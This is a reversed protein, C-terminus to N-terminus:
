KLSKILTIYRRYPKFGFKRYLDLLTTWDILCGRVGLTKMDLIACDILYVGLRHGRAARGLGLPGIQGWPHPLRQMYFRELSRESNELTLRCFGEVRGDLWLLLYDSPHGGDTIFVETEYEWRGAYERRMFDLLLSEQGAQMPQVQAGAPQTAVPQYDDLIRALDWEFPESGRRFYAKRNFFPESTLTAPLGHTYARLGGGLRAKACSKTVLWSEARNLLERGLAQRQWGPHVAIVDIWGTKISPDDLMVSALVVGRPTKEDSGFALWGARQVGRLPQSNCSIFSASFALDQGCAANWIAAATELHESSSFDFSILM